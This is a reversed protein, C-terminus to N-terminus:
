LRAAVAAALREMDTEDNYIQASVRIWIRGGRAHVQVEIHDDVLLADRLRSAAESTSGLADPAPISVMSAFLSDPLSLETGWRAMCLQAGRWALDHNYRRLADYGADELFAIGDPAALFPTPDRTGIWDFEATYGGGAGWSLVLPHLGAQREPAAWLFACSRPAMAWKHLNAVYYDAGISPVDLALSGPAHAGDVLLPVGRARCLAAVERVPFVIATESAIHDVTVLRTRPTLAAALREMLVGTDFAPYPVEVVRVTAGHDAAVARAALTVAGYVHDTVVLEDGPALDLSRLVTSVGSSTNDVFVLDDASAGVFSAVRGAAQRILTGGPRPAGAFTFLERLMFAAPQREIRDRLAQQAALVRRPVVGVTGHNLYTVDPDLAFDALRSHGYPM